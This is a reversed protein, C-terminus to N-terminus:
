TYQHQYQLLEMRMWGSIQTTLMMNSFYVYQTRQRSSLGYVTVTTSQFICCKYTQSWLKEAYLGVGALFYSFYKEGERLDSTSRKKTVPCLYSFRPWALWIPSNMLRAWKSFYVDLCKQKNTQQNTRRDIWGSSM